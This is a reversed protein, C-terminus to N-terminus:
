SDRVQLYSVTVCLFYGFPWYHLVMVATVTFPVCLMVMLLDGFALNGIFLHMVSSVERGGRIVTWLVLFNGALGLLFVVSYLVCFLPMLFYEPKLCTKDSYLVELESPTLSCWDCILSVNDTETMNFNDIFLQSIELTCKEMIDHLTTSYNEFSVTANTRPYVTADITSLSTGNIFNDSGLM